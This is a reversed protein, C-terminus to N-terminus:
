LKVVLTMFGEGTGARISRNGHEGSLISVSIGYEALLSLQEHFSYAVGIKGSIGATYYKSSSSNSNYQYGIGLGPSAFFSIEEWSKLKYVPSVSLSIRHSNQISAFYGTTEQYEITGTLSLRWLTTPSTLFGLGIGGGYASATLNSISFLMCTSNGSEWFQAAPSKDQARALTSLFVVILATMGGKLMRSARM